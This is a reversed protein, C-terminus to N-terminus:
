LEPLTTMVLSPATLIISNRLPSILVPIFLIFARVTVM